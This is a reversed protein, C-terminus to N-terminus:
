PLAERHGASAVGRDRSAAARTSELLCLVIGFWFIPHRVVFHFMSFVAIGATLAVLAPLRARWGTVLTSAALWVFALLAM